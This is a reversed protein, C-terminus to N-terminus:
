RITLDCVNSLYWILNYLSPKEGSVITLAGFDEFHLDEHISEKILLKEDTHLDRFYLGTLLVTVEM